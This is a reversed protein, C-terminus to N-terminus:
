TDIKLPLRKSYRSLWSKPAASEGRVVEAFREKLEKGDGEGEGRVM